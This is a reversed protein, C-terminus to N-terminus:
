KINHSTSSNKIRMKFQTNKIIKNSKTKMDKTSNDKINKSNNSETTNSTKIESLKKDVENKLTDINTKIAYQNYENNISDLIIKAEEFNNHVVAKKSRLYKDVISLLITTENNSKDKSLAMDFLELAQDFNQNALAEKGKEIDERSTSGNRSKDNSNSANGLCGLLGISLTLLLLISFIKKM